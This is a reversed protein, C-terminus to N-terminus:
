HAKIARVLSEAISPCTHVGFSFSIPLFPSAESQYIDCSVKDHAAQHPMTRSFVSSQRGNQSNLAHKNNTEQRFSSPFCSFLIVYVALLSSHHGNANPCM